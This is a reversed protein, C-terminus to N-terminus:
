REERDIYELEVEAKASSITFVPKLWRNDFDLFWHDEAEGDNDIFTDISTHYSQLHTRDFTGSSRTNELTPTDSRHLLLAERKVGVDREIKLYELAAHTGGGLILVSIVCVFLITTQIVVSNRDNGIEFSLAFAIAGRLGAFWIMLQHNRPIQDRSFLNILKALPIVAVYRSLLIAALGVIIMPIVIDQRASTFLTVGLYIFIFNECLQSLVRFM